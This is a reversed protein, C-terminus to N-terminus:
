PVRRIRSTVSATQSERMTNGLKMIGEESAFRAPLIEERVLVGAGALRFRFHNRSKHRAKHRLVHRCFQRASSRRSQNPHLFERAYERRFPPRQWRLSRLLLFGRLFSRVSRSRLRTSSAQHLSRAHMRSHKCVNDRSWLIRQVVNNEVVKPFAPIRLVKAPTAQMGLRFMRKLLALERNITANKADERQRSDVFTSCFM